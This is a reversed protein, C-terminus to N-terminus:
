AEVEEEVPEKGIATLDDEHLRSKCLYKFGSIISSTEGRGELWDHFLVLYVHLVIFAIFVWMLVHHISRTLFDGGLFEPVWAFLQPFWWGSNDAYLGFGSFVMALAIFFMALYSISAIANHGISVDCLNEEKEPILLIDRKIVHLIDRRGRRDFPVFARWNAYKNGAVFAWYLRLIMVAVFVYAAVFHTARLYGFWYVDSAEASLLIAPPKAIFYGTVALVVIALANAWHFIRVPLEWVYVRIFERRKTTM